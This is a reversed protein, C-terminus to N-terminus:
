KLILKFAEKRRCTKGQDEKEIMKQIDKDEIKKKEAEKINERKEEIMELFDKVLTMLIKRFIQHHSRNLTQRFKILRKTM